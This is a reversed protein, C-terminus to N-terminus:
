SPDGRGFDQVAKIAVAGIEEFIEAWTKEIEQLLQDKTWREVLACAVVQLAYARMADAHRIQGNMMRENAAELASLAAQAGPTIAISVARYGLPRGSRKRGRSAKVYLKVSERLFWRNASERRTLPTKEVDVGPPVPLLEKRAWLYLSVVSVQHKKALAQATEYGEARMQKVLASSPAGGRSNM